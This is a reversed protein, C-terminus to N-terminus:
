CGAYRAAPPITPPGCARTEPRRVPLRMDTEATIRRAYKSDPVIQWRGDTKRIEIVSGGHAMMEIDVLERTMDKFAIKKADQRVLGPFMLEESTYEHNVVLLGHESPNPAGPMPIFGVFDNNYGFQRAQAAASQRQPDFIPADPLVPDGWRILIDADYGEAVHHAQDVGATVEKFSFASANEARAQEAAILALPSISASIATVALAGRMVDRRTFRRAIVDGLSPNESSNCGVDEGSEYAQARTIADDTM